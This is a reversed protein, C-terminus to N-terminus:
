NSTRRAEWVDVKQYFDPSPPEQGPQASPSLLVCGQLDLHHWTLPSAPSLCSAGARLLLKPQSGKGLMSLFKGSKPHCGQLHSGAWLDRHSSGAARDLWLDLKSKASNPTM